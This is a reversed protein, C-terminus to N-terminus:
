KEDDQKPSDEVEDGANEDVIRRRTNESGGRGCEAEGYNKDPWKDVVDRSREHAVKSGSGRTWDDAHCAREREKDGSRYDGGHDEEVPRRDFFDKQRFRGDDLRWLGVRGNGIEPM